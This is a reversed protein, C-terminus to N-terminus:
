KWRGPISPTAASLSTNGRAAPASRARLEHLLVSAAIARGDDPLKELARDILACLRSTVARAEAIHDVEPRVGKDAIATGQEDDM